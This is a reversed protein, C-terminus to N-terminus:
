TIAIFIIKISAFSNTQFVRGQLFFSQDICCHLDTSKRTWLSVERNIKHKSSLDFRCQYNIKEERDRVTCFIVFHLKVLTILSVCM